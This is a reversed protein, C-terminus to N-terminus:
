KSPIALFLSKTMIEAIQYILYLRVQHINLNEISTYNDIIGIFSYDGIDPLNKGVGKGPSVSEKKFYIKGISKRKGLSADIALIPIKPHRSQILSLEDLINMAHIPNELTGYVPYPFHNEKLKHGILPGLCDGICRDTGICVTIFPTHISNKIANGLQHIAMPNQYHSEM